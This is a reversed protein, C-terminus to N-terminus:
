ERPRRTRGREVELIISFSCEWGTVTTDASALCCCTTTGDGDVDYADSQVTSEDEVTERREGDHKETGAVNAGDQEVDDAEDQAARETQEVAHEILLLLLLLILLLPLLLATAPSIEVKHIVKKERWADKCSVQISAAIIVGMVIGGAGAEGAAAILLVMIVVAFVVEFAGSGEFTVVLM